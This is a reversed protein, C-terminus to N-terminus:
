DENFYEKSANCIPCKYDDPLDEFPTGPPIGATPDGEEPNYQFGCISCTFTNGSKRFKDKNSKKHEKNEATKEEPEDDAEKEKDLKEKEIYTPANKPSLMKFKERYYKYTLPDDDSIVDSDKVEGIILLHTGVDHTSIVECDFWAVASDVVIPAGTVATKTEVKKFKDMDQSSMFGFEGILSSSTEKSLVSLSFKKSNLIKDITANKKNCSIAIRPPEATVQFATNGVYGAKEGNTETAIIYLGYSLKHFAKYKM